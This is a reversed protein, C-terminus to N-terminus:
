NVRELKGAVEKYWYGARGHEQPIEYGVATFQYLGTKIHRWADGAWDDGRRIRRDHEPAREYIM